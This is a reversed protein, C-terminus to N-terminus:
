ILFAIARYNETKFPIAIWAPRSFVVESKTVPSCSRHTVEKDTKSDIGIAHFDDTVPKFFRRARSFSARAPWGRPGMVPAGVTNIHTTALRSLM